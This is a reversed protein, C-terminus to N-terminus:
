LIVKMATIIINNEQDNLAIEQITQQWLWILYHGMSPNWSEETLHPAM